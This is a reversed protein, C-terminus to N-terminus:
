LLEDKVFDILCLILCLIGLLATVVYVLEM